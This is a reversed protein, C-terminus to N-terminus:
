NLIIGIGLLAKDFGRLIIEMKLNSLHFFLKKAGICNNGFVLEENNLLDKLFLEMAWTTFKSQCCIPQSSKSFSNVLSCISLPPKLSKREELFLEPAFELQVINLSSM